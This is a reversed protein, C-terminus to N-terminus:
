IVITMFSVVTKAMLTCLIRIEWFVVTKSILAIEVLLVPWQRGWEAPVIRSLSIRLMSIPLMFIVPQHVPPLCKKESITRKLLLIMMTLIAGDEGILSISIKSEPIVVKEKYVGKRVLITTRGAKRFDPVAHIAEQITFFDGSGDKAVVFDYHRVFPALAPVEKAIADVTLGAITRAGYVNLHTNDERGKPCAACVGEPIWMFLKKSAEPGMEQVLDHTIKNMDVFPVDLEKAVNRPSELYKGHTDILVEGDQSVSGKSLDKRVDDEAVANKNNRFNRRVIANFLVPIGGKARTEKVFRRLNADFTSGPDTHRKEDAKEDNHGFQIFVYDGPKVKNIVVEWLGEDIFSKSSRGNRAHNEVRINESFYGGLVHGWGREQNGGELPKNAMTSDGIMFITITRDATFASFLLLAVFAMLMKIKM